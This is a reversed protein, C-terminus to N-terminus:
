TREIARLAADAAAYGSELAGEVTGNAPPDATVEGAFFLTEHVPAALSRAAGAGGVLPYSYAGRSFPDRTWDHTWTGTVAADVTARPTGFANAVVDLARDALGAADLGSAELSKAMPGGSWVTLLPSDPGPGTWLVPWLSGPLHLFAPAPVRSTWFPERFRLVVRLAHGAALHRLANAKDELTTLAPEFPLSRLVGLPLAVIAMKATFTRDGGTRVEVLGRQWRVADVVHNLRAVGSPLLAALAGPVQDYGGVTRRTHEDGIDGIALARASIREGEAPQLSQVYELALERGPGRVHAAALADVFSQDPAQEGVQAAAEVAAHLSRSLDPAEVLAGNRLWRQASRVEEFAIGHDRAIAVTRPAEGHVFEAGLEISPGEDDRRTWVRGGLRDRAELMVVDVGRGALVAAAALGACGGGVVVVEHHENM